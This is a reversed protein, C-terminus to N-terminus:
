YKSIRKVNEKKKLKDIDKKAAWLQFNHVASRNMLLVSGTVFDAQEVRSVLHGVGATYVFNGHVLLQEELVHLVLFFYWVELLKGEAHPSLEVVVGTIMRQERVSTLIM